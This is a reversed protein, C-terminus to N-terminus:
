GKVAGATLGRVIHRQFLILLVVIPVAAIIAGAVPINSQEINTRLGRLAIQITAWNDPDNVIARPWLYQNFAALFAIVTFSAIV